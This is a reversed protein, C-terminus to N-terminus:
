SPPWHRWPTFGVLLVAASICGVASGSFTVLSATEIQLYGALGLFVGAFAALMSGFFVIQLMRPPLSRLRM